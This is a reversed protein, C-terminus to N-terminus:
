TLREFVHVLFSASVMGFFLFSLTAVLSRTSLRSIGCVGHGSTCGSGMRTGFGVLLGALILIPTPFNSRTLLPLGSLLQYLLGGGILGLVFLLRWTRDSAKLDLLDYTISSIGAIRGILWLLIVASLGILMGGFIAAYPDFEAM